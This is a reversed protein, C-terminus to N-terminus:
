ITQTHSSYTLGNHALVASIAHFVAYYARSVADGYYGMEFEKTAIDLKEEAKEIMAKLTEDTPKYDTM